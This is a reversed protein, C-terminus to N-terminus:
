TCAPPVHPDLPLLPRRAALCALWAVPYLVGTPVLVGVLGDVPVVAALRAGLALARDHLEAYSLRVTGDDVALHDPHRAVLEAFVEFLPRECEAVAEATAPDAMPVAGGRDPQPRSRGASM